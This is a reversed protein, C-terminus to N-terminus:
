FVARRSLFVDLNVVGECAVIISAVRLLDGGSHAIRTWSVKMTAQQPVCSWIRADERSVSRLDKGRSLFENVPSVM